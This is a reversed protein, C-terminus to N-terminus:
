VHHGFGADAARGLAAVAAAVDQSAVGVSKFFTVDNDIAQHHGALIESLTADPSKGAAILDGAEAAAAAVDDVIVYSRATTGTPVEIMDPRYAGVANIHTGPRVTADEFLAQTSPTACNVIDALAVAQDPTDVTEGGVETALREANGRDRSWIVVRDIPRVTRIAAIQDFAMAGAGLMALTTADRRGVLETALGTVAGTRIATLAPGDVIGLPNGEPDIVLVLGVPNGPVLSVVKIGAHSGVRGPMFMSGALETRLPIEVDSGFAQRQSAVALDM